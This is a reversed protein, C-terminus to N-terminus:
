VTEKVEVNEGLLILVLELVKEAPMKVEEPRTEFSKASFQTIQLRQLYCIIICCYSIMAVGIAFESYVSKM